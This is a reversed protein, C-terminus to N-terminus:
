DCAQRQRVSPRTHRVFRGSTTARQYRHCHGRDQRHTWRCVMSTSGINCLLLATRCHLSQRPTTSDSICSHTMPMSRRVSVSLVSSTQSRNRSCRSMIIQNISQNISQYLLRRIKETGHQHHRLTIQTDVNSYRSIELFQTMPVIVSTKESRRHKCLYSIIFDALIIM